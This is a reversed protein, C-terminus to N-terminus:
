GFSRAKSSRAATEGNEFTEIRWSPRICAPGLGSESITEDRTLAVKNERYSAQATSRALGMLMDPMYRAPSVSTRVNTRLPPGSIGAVGGFRRSQRLATM